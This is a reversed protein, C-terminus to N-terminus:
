KTRSFIFFFVRLLLIKPLIASMKLVVLRGLVLGFIDFLFLENRSKYVNVKGGGPAPDFILLHM